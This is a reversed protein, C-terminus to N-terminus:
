TKLVKNGIMMVWRAKKLALQIKKATNVRKDSNSCVNLFLANNLSTLKVFQIFPTIRLDCQSGLRRYIKSLYEPLVSIEQVLCLKRNCLFTRGIKQFKVTLNNIAPLARTNKIKERQTCM